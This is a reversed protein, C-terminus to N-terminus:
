KTIEGPKVKWYDKVKDFGIWKGNKDLGRQYLELQALRVADVKKNAIAAVVTTNKGSFVYKPNDDDSLENLYNTIKEELKM